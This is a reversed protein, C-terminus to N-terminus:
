VRSFNTELLSVTNEGGRCINRGFFPYLSFSSVCPSAIPQYLLRTNLLKAVASASYNEQELPTWVSHVVFGWPTTKGPKM